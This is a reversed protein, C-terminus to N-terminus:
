KKIVIIDNGCSSIRLNNETRYESESWTQSYTNDEAILYRYTGSKINFFSGKERPRINLLQDTYNSSLFMYQNNFAGPINYNPNPSIIISNYLIVKVPKDLQNDFVVDGFGAKKCDDIVEINNNNTNNNTNNNSNNINSSSSSNVVVITWTGDARLEITKGDETKVRM